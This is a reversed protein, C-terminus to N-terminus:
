EHNITDITDAKEGSAGRRERMIRVASVAATLLWAIGLIAAIGDTRTLGRHLLWIGLATYAVICLIRSTLGRKQKM